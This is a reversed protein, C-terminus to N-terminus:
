FLYFTHYSKVLSYVRRTHHATHAPNTNYNMTVYENVVVLSKLKVTELKLFLEASLYYKSIV